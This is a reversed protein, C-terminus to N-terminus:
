VFLAAVFGLIHPYLGLTTATGGKKRHASDKILRSILCLGVGGLNKQFNFHLQSIQLTHACVLLVILIKEQFDVCDFNYLQSIHLPNTFKCFTFAIAYSSKM